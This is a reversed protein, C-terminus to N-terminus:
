KWALKGIYCLILSILLYSIPIPKGLVNLKLNTVFQESRTNIKVDSMSDERRELM